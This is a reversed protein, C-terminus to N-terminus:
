AIGEQDDHDARPAGCRPCEDRRDEELGMWEECAPLVDACPCYPSCSRARRRRADTNLLPRRLLTLPSSPHVHLHRRLRRQVRQLRTAPDSM